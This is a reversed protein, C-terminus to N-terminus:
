AIMKRITKEIAQVYFQWSLEICLKLYKSFLSNKESLLFYQNWKASIKRNSFKEYVLM